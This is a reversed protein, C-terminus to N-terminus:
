SREVARARAVFEIIKDVDKVGPRAEVGSSVDVGWPAVAAIAATVNAPNLGGALVLDTRQAIAAAQSWDAQTGSGSKAGEFLLRAPWQVPVDTDSDRYVPLGACSEGLDLDAFDEADTQLWDPRFRDRVKRWGDASPHHMVAVRVISAPVNACLALARDPDVRRPSEAFVFGLADAGAGVAAAVAEASTLGCIKVFV